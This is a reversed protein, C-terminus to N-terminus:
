WERMPTFFHLIPTVQPGVGGGGGGIGSLGTYGQVKKNVPPSTRLYILKVPTGPKQMKEGRHM